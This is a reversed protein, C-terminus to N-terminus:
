TIRAVAVSTNDADSASSADEGAGEGACTM